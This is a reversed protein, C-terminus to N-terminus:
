RFCTLRHLVIDGYQQAGQTMRKFHLTAEYSKWELCLFQADRCALSPSASFSTQMESIAGAEGRWRSEGCGSWINTKNRCVSIQSTIVRIAVPQRVGHSAPLPLICILNLAQM